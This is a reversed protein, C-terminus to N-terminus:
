MLKMTLWGGEGSGRKQYGRQRPPDHAEVWGGGEERKQHGRQRPPNNPEDGDKGRVQKVIESLMQVTLLRKTQLFLRSPIRNATRSSLPQNREGGRLM